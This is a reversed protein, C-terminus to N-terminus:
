SWRRQYHFRQACCNVHIFRVDLGDIETPFQSLANLGAESRRRDYGTVWYRALERVMARQAARTPDEAPEKSPWRVAPHARPSGPRGPMGSHPGAAQHELTMRDAPM